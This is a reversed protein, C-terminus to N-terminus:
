PAVPLPIPEPTLTEVSWVGLWRTFGDEGTFGQVIRLAAGTEDLWVDARNDGQVLVLRVTPTDAVLEYGAVDVGGDLVLAAAQQAVAWDAVPGIVTWETGTAEDWSGDVGQYFSGFGDVFIQRTGHPEDWVIVNDFYTITMRQDLREVDVGDAALQEVGDIVSLCSTIRARPYPVAGDVMPILESVTPFDAPHEIPISPPLHFGEPLRFATSTDPAPTVTSAVYADLDPSFDPSEARAAGCATVLVAVLLLTVRRSM